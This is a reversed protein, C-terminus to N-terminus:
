LLPVLCYQYLCQGVIGLAALGLWEVATLRERTHFVSVLSRGGDGPPGGARAGRVHAWGIVVAFTASAVIMRLANFAQPDLERFAHKVIAYNTGWILTMLLLLVDIRALRRSPPPM